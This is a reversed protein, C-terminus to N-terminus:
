AAFAGLGRQIQLKLQYKTSDRWTFWIFVGLALLVCSVLSAVWFVASQVLPPEHSLMGGVGGLVFILALVISFLYQGLFYRAVVLAEDGEIRITGKCFFVGASRGPLFSTRFGISGDGLKHFIFAQPGVSSRLSDSQTPKSVSFRHFTKGINFAWGIGHFLAVMEASAVAVVFFVIGIFTFESASM